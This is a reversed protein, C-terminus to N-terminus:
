QEESSCNETPFFSTRKIEENNMTANRVLHLHIFYSIQYRDIILYIKPTWDDSFHRIVFDKCNAGSIPMRLVSVFNRQIFVFLEKLM